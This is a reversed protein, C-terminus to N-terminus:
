NGEQGDEAGSKRLKSFLAFLLLLVIAGVAVGGAVLIETQTQNQNSAMTSTVNVQLKYASETLKYGSDTQTFIIPMQVTYDAISEGPSLRIELETKSAAAVEVKGPEKTLDYSNGNATALIGLKNQALSQKTAGEILFSFNLDDTLTNELTVKLTVPEKSSLTVSYQNPSLKFGGAATNTLEEAYVSVAASSLTLTAAAIIFGRLTRLLTAPKM